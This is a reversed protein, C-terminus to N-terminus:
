RLIKFQQRPILAQFLVSSNEIYNTIRTFHLVASQFRYEVKVATATVLRSVHVKSPSTFMDAFETSIM